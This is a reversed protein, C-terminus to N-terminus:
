FQIAGKAKLKAHVARGLAEFATESDTPIAALVDHAEDPSLYHPQQAVPTFQEDKVFGVSVTATVSGDPNISIPMINFCMQQAIPTFKFM